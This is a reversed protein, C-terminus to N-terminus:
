RIELNLFTIKAFNRIRPPHRVGPTTAAAVTMRQVSYRDVASTPPPSSTSRHAHATLFQQRGSRPVLCLTLTVTVPRNTGLRAHRERGWVCPSRDRLSVRVRDDCARFRAGERRVRVLPTPLCGALRRSARHRHPHPARSTTTPDPSERPVEGSSMGSGPRPASSVPM